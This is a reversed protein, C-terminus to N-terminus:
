TIREINGLWTSSDASLGGSQPEEDSWKRDGLRAIKIDKVGMPSRMSPCHYPPKESVELDVSGPDITYAVFLCIQSM